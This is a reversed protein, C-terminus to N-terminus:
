IFGSSIRKVFVAGMIAFLSPVPIIGAGEKNATNLKGGLNDKQAM